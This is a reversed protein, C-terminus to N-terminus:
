AEGEQKRSGRLNKRYESPALGTIQRFRRSFSRANYYGVELGIEAAAIDTNELLYKARNIKLETVYDNIPMGNKEHFYKSLAPLSMGYAEAMEQFSFNPDNYREALYQKMKEIVPLNSNEQKSLNAGERALFDSIERLYGDYFNRDRSKLLLLIDAKEAPNMQYERVDSLTYAMWMCVYQSWYVEKEHALKLLSDLYDKANSWNREKIQEQIYRCEAVPLLSENESDFWLIGKQETMEDLIAARIFSLPVQGIEYCRESCSIKGIGGTRLIADLQTHILKVSTRDVNWIVVFRRGYELENLIFHISKLKCSVLYESLEEESYDYNMTIISVYLISEHIDFDLMNYVLNREETTRLEGRLMKTLLYRRYNKMQEQLVLSKEELYELSGSIIDYVGKEQKESKVYVKEAKEKIRNIPRYFLTSLYLICGIGSFFLLVILVMWLINQSKVQQSLSDGSTIMIFKYNSLASTEQSVVYNTGKRSVIASNKATDDSWKKGAEELIDTYFEEEFERDNSEFAFVNGEPDEICFMGTGDRMQERIVAEFKDMDVVFIANTYYRFSRRVRSFFKYNGNNMVADLARDSGNKLYDNFEERTVDQMRYLNCFIDKLYSSNSSILYDSGGQYIVIETIYKQNLTLMDLKSKVRNVEVFDEPVLTQSFDSDMFISNAAAEMNEFLLNLETVVVNLRNQSSNMIYSDIQKMYVNQVFVILLLCPFLLICFYSIFLTRFGQLWKRLKTRM